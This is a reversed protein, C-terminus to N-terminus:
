DYQKFCLLFFGTSPVNPGFVTSTVGCFDGWEVGLFSFVLSSFALSLAIFYTAWEPFTFSQNQKTGPFTFSKNQKTTQKTKNNTKNQPSFFEAEKNSWM